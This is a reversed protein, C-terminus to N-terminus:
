SNYLSLIRKHFKEEENIRLIIKLFYIEMGSFDFGKLRLADKQTTIFIHTSNKKGIDKIREIDVKRYFYHDPFVIHEKVKIEMNLILNKFSFPDAIGSFLIVNKDKFFSISSFKEEGLKYFGLPLYEAEFFSVSPNIRELFVRLDLTDPNFNTKTLVIIQARKLGDLPERLIGRPILRGNGFPDAVDVTVIELDKKIQWQQFGDDLIVTDVKDQIDQIAKLRNRNSIVPIDVLNKKLMEVEDTLNQRASFGRCLVAIRKKEKKLFLAIYEVLPTKGTGGLVINGVSIVKCSFKYSRKIKYNRLWRIILEYFLSLLYLIKKILNSFLDNRKDRALSYLYNLM